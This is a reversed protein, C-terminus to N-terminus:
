PVDGGEPPEVEEGHHDFEFVGIIMTFQFHRIELNEYLSHSFFAIKSKTRIEAEAGM